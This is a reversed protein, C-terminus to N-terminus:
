RCNAPAFQSPLTGAVSGPAILASNAARCQWSLADTPPTFSATGIPLAIAGTTGGTYPTLTLTGAGASLSYTLVVAGTTPNLTVLTVNQTPSPATWGTAYGTAASSPNGSAIMDSVNLRAPQALSLGETVRSRITYQQYQPVAIAALIGIIAVVIMLEILTFGRGWFLAKGPSVRAFRACSM